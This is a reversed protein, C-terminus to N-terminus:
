QKLKNIKKNWEDKSLEIINDIKPPILEGCNPCFPHQYEWSDPKIMKAYGEYGCTCEIWIKESM